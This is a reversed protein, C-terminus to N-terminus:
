SMYGRRSDRDGATQQHNSALLELLEYAEEPSKNSISGGCAADILIQSEVLYGQYFIEGQRWEELGHGLCKRLLEQFREFASTMSESPAQQFSVIEGRLKNRLALPHYKNIFKQVLTNWDTISDLKLAQYWSLARDALSFPFVMLKIAEESAGNIKITSCVHTFASIHTYLNENREGRFPPMVFDKM